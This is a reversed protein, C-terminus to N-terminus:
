DKSLVLFIIGTQTEHIHIYMTNKMGINLIIIFDFLNGPLFRKYLPPFYSHSISRKHTQHSFSFLSSNLVWFVSKVKFHFLDASRRAMAIIKTNRWLQFKAREHSKRHCVIFINLDTTHRKGIIWSGGYSLYRGKDTGIDLM